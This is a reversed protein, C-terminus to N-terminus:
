LERSLEKLIKDVELEVYDSITREDKNEESSYNQIAPFLISEDVCDSKKSTKLLFNDESKFDVLCSSSYPDDVLLLSNSPNHTHTNEKFIFSSFLVLSALISIWLILFYSYLKGKMENDISYYHNNM